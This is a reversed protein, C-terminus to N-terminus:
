KELMRDLHKKAVKRYWYEYDKMDRNSIDGKSYHATFLYRDIHYGKLGRECITLWFDWDQCRGLSTDWEPCVSRRVLSSTPIYNCRVLENFDFRKSRFNKNQWIPNMVGERRHNCYVFSQYPDNDLVDEMREVMDSDLVTDGDVWMVYKGRSHTFGTNRSFPAGYPGGGYPRSQHAIIRDVRDRYTEVIDASGDTSADEVVIVECAATQALCSDICAAIYDSNDHCTVILSSKDM